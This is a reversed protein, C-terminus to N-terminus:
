KEREKKIASEVDFSGIRVTKIFVVDVKTGSPILVTPSISEMFRIRYDMFKEAATSTGNMVGDLAMEKFGRNKTDIMGFQNIGLNGQGKVNSTFGSVVGAAFFSTLHKEAMSLVSGRIGNVGDDGYVVGAVKTSIFLGLERDECVLEEARIEARESSIDGHCSALIRCQKIDLAFDDPLNGKDNLKIVVPLPESAANVSTSVAIGGLLYGSVYSTAPIYNFSSVPLRTEASDVVATIGIEAPMVTEISDNESAALSDQAAQNQAKLNDIENLAYALRSKIEEFEKDTESKQTKSDDAISSKLSDIQEARKVGEEEISEELFNRWKTDGKIGDTGLEITEHEDSLVEPAEEKNADKANSSLFLMLVFLTLIVGGAVLLLNLRQKKTIQSRSEFEGSNSAFFKQVQTLKESIKQKINEITM